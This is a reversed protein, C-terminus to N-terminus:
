KSKGHGRIIMLVTAVFVIIGLSLFMLARSLGHHAVSVSVSESWPGAKPKDLGRVRYYWTGDPKGSIVAARDPGIYAIIPNRFEPNSAEQLEIQDAETEWNLRFYGASAIQSDTSLRPPQAHVMMPSVLLGLLGTIFGVRIPAHLHYLPMKKLPMYTCAHSGQCSRAVCTRCQLMM